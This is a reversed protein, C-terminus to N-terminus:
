LQARRLLQANVAVVVTDIVRRSSRAAMTASSVLATLSTRAVGSLACATDGVSLDDLGDRM